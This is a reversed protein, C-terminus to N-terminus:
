YMLKFHDCATAFNQELIRHRNITLVNCSYFASALPVNQFKMAHKLIAITM